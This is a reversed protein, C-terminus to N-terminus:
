SNLKREEKYIKTTDVFVNYVFKARTILFYIFIERNFFCHRNKRSKSESFGSPSFMIERIIEKQKQRCRTYLNQISSRISPRVLLRTITYPRPLNRHGYSLLPVRVFPSHLIFCNQWTLLSKVNQWCFNESGSGNYQAIRKGFSLHPPPFSYIKM